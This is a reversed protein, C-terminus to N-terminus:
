GCHSEVVCLHSCIHTACRCESSNVFELPRVTVRICGILRLQRHGAEPSQIHVLHVLMMRAYTVARKGSSNSIGTILLESCLM